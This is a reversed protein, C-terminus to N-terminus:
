WFGWFDVVVVKGRYDSLKFSVGDADIADFDPAQMGIQLNEVEYLAREINQGTQSKGDVATRMSVLMEHARDRDAKPQAGAGMLSQVIAFRAATQVSDIPSKDAITNLTQEVFAADLGQPYGLEGILDSLGQSDIHAALLNEIAEQADEVAFEKGARVVWIWADVATGNGDSAYAVERFAATFSSWEVAAYIKASEAPTAAAQMQARVETRRTNYREVAKALKVTSGQNALPPEPNALGPQASFGTAALTLAWLPAHKRFM